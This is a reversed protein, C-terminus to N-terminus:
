QAFLVILCFFLSCVWVMHSITGKKIPNFHAQPSKHGNVCVYQTVTRGTRKSIIRSRRAPAGCLMGHIDTKRECTLRVGVCLSILNYIWNWSVAVILISLFFVISHTHTIGMGVLARGISDPHLPGDVHGFFGLYYLPFCIIMVFMSLCSRIIRQQIFTRSNWWRQFITQRGYSTVENETTYKMMSVTEIRQLTKVSGQRYFRCPDAGPQFV